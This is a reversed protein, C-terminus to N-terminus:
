YVVIALPTVGGRNFPIFNGTFYGNVYFISVGLRLRAGPPPRLGFGGPSFRTFVAIVIRGSKYSRVAPSLDPIMSSANNFCKLWGCPALSQSIHFLPVNLVLFMRICTVFRWM